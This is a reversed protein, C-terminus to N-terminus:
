FCMLNLHDKWYLLLASRNTTDTEEAEETAKGRVMDVLQWRSVNKLDEDKVGYDKRLMDRMEKVHLKRLDRDSNALSGLKPKNNIQIKPLLKNNADNPAVPKSTLRLYSFGEGCGTPEGPGTIALLCKNQMCLLFDATTRWHALKVEDDVQLVEPDRFM